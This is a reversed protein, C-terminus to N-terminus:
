EGAEAAKDAAALLDAAFRRAASPHLRTRMVVPAVRGTTTTVWWGADQGGWEGNSDPDPLEVIAVSPISLLQEIIQDAAEGSGKPGYIWEVTQRIPEAILAHPDTM